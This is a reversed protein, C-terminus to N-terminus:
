SYAGIVTVILPLTAIAGFGDSFSGDASYDSPAAGAVHMLPPACSGCSCSPPAFMSSRLM